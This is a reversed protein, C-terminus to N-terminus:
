LEVLFCLDRRTLDLVESYVPLGGKKSIWPTWTSSSVLSSFYIAAQVDASDTIANIISVAGSFRRMIQGPEQMRCAGARWAGRCPCDPYAYARSFM